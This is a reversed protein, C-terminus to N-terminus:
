TWPLRRSSLRVATLTVVSVSSVPMLIAAVVPTVLGALCLAVAGLNYVIAIILNDRVVKRLHRAALLARRIAAIGDGLFYFDAKGPLVPRDVAPTAACLAAEFSPSDNLGDGVMLTDKQDITRVRQAKAEPNLDGYARERPLGLALAAADVKSQADGSLLHIEFGNRALREMEGAADQKFDESLRFAALIEGNCVFVTEEGKSYHDSTSALAFKSHGLRWQDGEWAWQLGGGPIEQLSEGAVADVALSTGSLHALAAALSQSVPHNSRATMHRLVERARDDLAHLAERSPADLILQGMTLTGTKDLLVKKVDLAKEMFSQKRLFVGHRRLAFHVLEEALPTALGLACPCTVVLISITVKLAMTVDQFMWFLFGGAAAILVFTVYWTSINHWWRPKFDEDSLTTSRLLDQLRSDEFDECATVTFGHHSANFAGAPITEGPQFGVQDSEGTIWDLAVQTSQRMLIGQVPLLDGPAIWLEDNQHIATAAVAELQGERVRKVTLNEAGSSDLLANRNRELIHEQAWRGVLMLAIFITLSDFYAHEPGGTLFGYVSGSYALIMGLSIPVDLHAVRQRIGALAGKFFVGGGAILSITALGLSLWGFFQYLAGSDADLGFYYSLSFMMVNLAMSISIAMRMLLARSQQRAGKRSPGLRYGFKEVEALFEKLEGQAPDWSLEVKGLTPNIRLSAGAQRRHFLEGILWVCAACHVGQIDLELHLLGGTKATTSKQEELIRDLWSFSDPRLNAAPAVTDPKIDYYRDLNAQHIMEYVAKCGRCCFPGDDPNWFSGLGNGCHLCVRRRAADQWDDPWKMDLTIDTM